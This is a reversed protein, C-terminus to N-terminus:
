KKNRRDQLLKEFEDSEGYQQLRQRRRERRRALAEAEKKKSYIIWGVLGIVAAVLLVVVAIALGSLLAHISLPKFGPKHDSGPANSDTATDALTQSADNEVDGSVTSPMEVGDKVMLYAEGIVRDNYTYRMLAAARDPAIEPLPELTLDADEFQAGIPFTAVRGPEIELDSANYSANGLNITEDGSVYRSELSAIEVNQFSRFGFSLLEKGDVFYQRPSGKLIVSILRRGDSEAYTVLTNGAKILYGTKGAVAAPFYFNSSSDETIVLRHENQVTFGGPYNTTPGLKHSTASSIKLLEENEYAAQAILAMDYASVVQADGNLGSPNEFHSEQCGLSVLEENMMDVFGSISGATHEALANAAQNASVLLMAYLADEVTLQDGSVVGIKNGSDAEVSYVANDTFDVIEDPDCHELVVLATLIKTISAPPYQLHINQGYLIAGSDADMVIGAEAQIGTDSPWAPKAYATIVFLQCALLFCSLQKIKQKM